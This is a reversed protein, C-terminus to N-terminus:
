MKSINESVLKKKAFELRRGTFCCFFTKAASAFSDIEFNTM